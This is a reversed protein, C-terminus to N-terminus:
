RLKCALVAAGKFRVEVKAGKGLKPFDSPFPLEDPSDAKTDYNLDGVVDGGVVTDLTVSGVNAGDIAISIRDGEAFRGGPAAEFETSFKKRNDRKEWKASMSIDGDGSADCKRRVRDNAAAAPVITASVVALAALAAVVHRTM